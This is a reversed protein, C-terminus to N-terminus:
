WSKSASIKYTTNGSKHETPSVSYCEGNSLDYDSTDPIIYSTSKSGAPITISFNKHSATGSSNVIWQEISLTIAPLSTNADHSASIRIGSMTKSASISVSVNVEKPTDEKFKATVTCGSSPIKGSWTATTCGDSWKDFAYGSNATATPGTASDGPKGSVSKPTGITGGDGAEFTITASPTEDTWSVVWNAGIRSIEATANSKGTTDTYKKDISEGKDSNGKIYAYPPAELTVNDGTKYTGLGSIFSGGKTTVVETVTFVEESSGAKDPGSVDDNQCSYFGLSFAVLIGLICYKLKKM